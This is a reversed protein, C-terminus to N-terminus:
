NGRPTIRNERSVQPLLEEASKYFRLDFRKKEDM